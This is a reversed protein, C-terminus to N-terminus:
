QISGVPYTPKPANMYLNFTYIKGVEFPGTKVDPLVNLTIDGILPYLTIRAIRKGTQPGPEAFYYVTTGRVYVQPHSFIAHGNGDTIFITMQYPFFFNPDVHVIVQYQITGTPKTNGANVNNSNFTFLILALGLAFFIKTTKM